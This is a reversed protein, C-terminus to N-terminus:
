EQVGWEGLHPNEDAVLRGALLGRLAHLPYAMFELAASISRLVEPCALATPRGM